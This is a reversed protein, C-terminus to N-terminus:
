MTMDIRIDLIILDYCTKEVAGDVVDGDYVSACVHGVLELSKKILNNIPKDDEVILIQAM